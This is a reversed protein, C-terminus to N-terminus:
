SLRIVEERSTREDVVAEWERSDGGKPILVMEKQAGPRKLPIGRFVVTKRIVEERPKQHGTCSPGRPPILPSMLATPDDPSIPKFM